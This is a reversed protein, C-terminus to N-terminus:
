RTSTSARHRTKLKSRTKKQILGRNIAPRVRQLLVRAATYAVIPQLMEPDTQHAHRGNAEEDLYLHAVFEYNLFTIQSSSSSCDQTCANSYNRWSAFNPSTIQKARYWEHLSPPPLFAETSLWSSRVPVAHILYLESSTSMLYPPTYPFSFICLPRSNEHRKRFPNCWPRVNLVNQCKCNISHLLIFM